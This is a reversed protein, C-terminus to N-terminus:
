APSKPTASVHTDFCALSRCPRPDRRASAGLAAVADALEAAVEAVVEAHRLLRSPATADKLLRLANSLKAINLEPREMVVLTTKRSAITTQKSPCHISNLYRM